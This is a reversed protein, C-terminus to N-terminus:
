VGKFKKAESKKTKVKEKKDKSAKASSSRKENKIKKTKKAPVVQDAKASGFVKSLLDNIVDRLSADPDSIFGEDALKERAEDWEHSIDQRVEKGRDTGFLFYGAAGAFIGLAFGNLFSGEDKQSM